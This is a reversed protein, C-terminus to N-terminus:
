NKSEIEKVRAIIQPLRKIYIEPNWKLNWRNLNEQMTNLGVELRRKDANKPDALPLVYPAKSKHDIALQTGYIQLEGRRLLLRDYFMAFQRKPLNDEEVAQKIMPLYKEQTEKNAHQIVLFITSAGRKGIESKNPWGQTDLIKSVTILNLSDKKLITKWLADMEKSKRGYIAETSRIKNRYKQDNLYITDLSAILAQNYNAEKEQKNKLITSKLKNWQEDKHLVNLDSDNILHFYDAWKLENAIIFLHKFSQRKNGLLAYMCSLNYRDKLPVEDIINTSQLKYYDSPKREELLNFAIKYLEIAKERESNIWYSWGTKILKSYEQKKNQAYCFTLVNLVLLLTLLAKKM